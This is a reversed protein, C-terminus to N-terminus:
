GDDNKSPVLNPNSLEANVEGAVDGPIPPPMPAIKELLEHHGLTQWEVGSQGLLCGTATALQALGIQYNMDARASTIRAVAQLQIANALDTSAREGMKFLTQMADLNRGAAIVSYRSVLIQEWGSRLSDIANLVDATVTIEMQRTNAISKLRSLLASQYAAIAAENGIPVSASLGVTWGSQPTGTFGGNFLQSNANQISSGSSDFGNFTYGGILSLNPLLQNKAALVAVAAEVQLFEKQLLDARNSIATNVLAETDFEYTNIM